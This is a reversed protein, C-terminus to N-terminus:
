ENLSPQRSDPDKPGRRRVILVRRTTPARLAVLREVCGLVVLLAGFSLAGVYEPTVWGPVRDMEAGVSAGAFVIGLAILTVPFSREGFLELYDALDAQEDGNTSSGDMEPGAPPQPDRSNVSAAPRTSVTSLQDRRFFRVMVM